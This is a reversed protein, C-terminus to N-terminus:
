AVLSSFMTSAILRILSAKATKFYVNRIYNPGSKVITSDPGLFYFLLHKKFFM